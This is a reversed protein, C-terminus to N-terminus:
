SPESIEFRMFPRTPLSIKQKTIEATNTALRIISLRLDSNETADAVLSNLNDTNEIAEAYAKATITLTNTQQQIIQTNVPSFVFVM